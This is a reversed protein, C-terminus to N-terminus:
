VHAAVASLMVLVALGLGAIFPVRYAVSSM